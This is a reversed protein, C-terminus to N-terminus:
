GCRRPRAAAAALSRTANLPATARRLESQAHTSSHLVRVADLTYRTDTHM